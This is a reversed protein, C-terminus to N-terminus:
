RRSRDEWEERTGVDEITVRYNKGNSDQCLVTMEPQGHRPFYAFYDEFKPDYLEGSDQNIKLGMENFDQIAVLLSKKIKERQPKLDDTEM